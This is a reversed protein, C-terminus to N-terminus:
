STPDKRYTDKKVRSIYEIVGIPKEALNCHHSFSQLTKKNLTFRTIRNECM